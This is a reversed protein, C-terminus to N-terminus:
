LATDSKMTWEDGGGAETQHEELWRRNLKSQCRDAGGPTAETLESGLSQPLLQPVHTSHTCVCSGPPAVTICADNDAPGRPSITEVREASVKFGCCVDNLKALKDTQLFISSARPGVADDYIMPTDIAVHLPGVSPRSTKSHLNESRVGHGQRTTMVSLMFLSTHSAGRAVAASM